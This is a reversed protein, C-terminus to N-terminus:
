PKMKILQVGADMRALSADSPENLNLLSYVTYGLVVVCNEVLSSKFSCNYDTGTERISCNIRKTIQLRTENSMYLSENGPM